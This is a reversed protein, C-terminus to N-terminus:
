LVSIDPDNVLVTSLRGDNGPSVSSILLSADTENPLATIGGDIQSYIKRRTRVPADIRQHHMMNRFRGLAALQFLLYNVHMQFINRPNLLDGLVIVQKALYNRSFDWWRRSFSIVM